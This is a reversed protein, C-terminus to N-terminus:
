AVVEVLTVCCCQLFFRGFKIFLFKTITYTHVFLLFKRFHTGVHHLRDPKSLRFLKESQPKSRIIVHFFHLEAALDYQLEAALALNSLWLNSFSYAGPTWVVVQLSGLRSFSYM